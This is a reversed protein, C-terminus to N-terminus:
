CNEPTLKVNLYVCRINRFVWYKRRLFQDEIAALKLLFPRTNISRTILDYVCWKRGFIHLQFHPYYRDIQLNEVDKLLFLM